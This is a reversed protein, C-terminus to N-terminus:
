DITEAIAAIDSNLSDIIHLANNVSEILMKKDSILREVTLHSAPPLKEADHLANYLLSLVTNIQGTACGINNAHCDDYRHKFSPTVPTKVTTENPNTM